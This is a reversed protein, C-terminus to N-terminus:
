ADLSSISALYVEPRDFNFVGIGKLTAIEEQQKHTPEILQKIIPLL